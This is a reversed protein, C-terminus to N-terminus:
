GLLKNLPRHDTVITLYPCGLLFLRAKQLCWVIALTEGEVAVYGAEATTLHCSVCLTLHWGRKCCFPTTTSPCDCYQQLIVFRIGEKSWDTIAATPRTKNYYALGYRALQCITDQAQHFNICLQDDWYVQRGVPKKLLERFTNMIPAKALFPALQNVFGYWARIDSISLNDPMPFNKIAALHEETPKYADWGLRFGVLYIERRAFQFNEPKLTIDKAACTALIDYVYWFVKEINSNYLLKDDVCKYM